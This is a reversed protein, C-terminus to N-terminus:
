VHARGIELKDQQLKQENFVGTQFLNKEKLALQSKIASSSLVSNGSFILKELIMQATEVIEFSITVKNNKKAISYTVSVGPYGKDLYFKQIALIDAQLKSEKFIANAKSALVDLLENSRLKVNGTFVVADISPKETVKIVIVISDRKTNAAIATPEITEFYDLDYLKALIDLWVDDTFKKGKYDDIIFQVDSLKISQLGEFRIDAIPLDYYWDQAALRTGAFAVGLLIIALILRRYLQHRSVHM